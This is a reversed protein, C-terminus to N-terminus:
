WCNKLAVVSEETRLGRRAENVGVLRERDGVTGSVNLSVDNVVVDTDGSKSEWGVGETDRGLLAVVERGIGHGKVTQHTQCLRHTM